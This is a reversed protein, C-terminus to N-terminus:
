LAGGGAAPWPDEGGLGWRHQQSAYYVHEAYGDPDCHPCPGLGDLYGFDLCVGCDFEWAVAERTEDIWSTLASM